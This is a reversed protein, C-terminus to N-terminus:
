RKCTRPGGDVSWAAFRADEAFPAGLAKELLRRPRTWEAEWRVTGSRDVRPRRFAEARALISGYGLARLEERAGVPIDLPARWQGEGIADIVRLLGNSARLAPVEPPGFAPKKVLMGGLIPRRHLVQLWLDAQEQTWPVNLVAGPPGERICDLVASGRGDWTALPLVEDRRAEALLAAVLGLGLLAHRKGDSRALLGAAAPAAMLALMAVARGPWWWRRMADVHEVLWLYPVNRVFGGAVPMAPGTALLLAAGVWTVAVAWAPRRTRVLVLVAAGILALSTWGLPDTGANWRVGEDDVLSGATAHALAYTWLGEKDGEMTRLALPALPGDGNLALLGPVEGSAVAGLMPLVVPAVALAATLGALLLRGAAGADRTRLVHVSGATVVCAGLALGHFWYAYGCLAVLLGAGVAHSARRMRLLAAVAFAAPALWAQTPRGFQLEQLVFPHLVLVLAAPWRRGAPIDMAAAIAAGGLANTMLLVAVWLDYGAVPGFAARLPLAAFADLLNGGTHLWVDKGWPHFLLSSHEARAEGAVIRGALDYFWQTGNADVYARGVVREGPHRLVGALLTVVAGLVVLAGAHHTLWARLRGIM